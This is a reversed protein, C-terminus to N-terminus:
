SRSTSTSLLEDNASESARVAVYYRARERDASHQSNQRRLAVESVSVIDKERM